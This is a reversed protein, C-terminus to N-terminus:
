DANIAAALALLNSTTLMKKFVYSKSPFYFQFTYDSGQPRPFLVSNSLDRM